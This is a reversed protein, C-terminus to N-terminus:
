YRKSASQDIRGYFFPGGDGRMEVSIDPPLTWIIINLWDCAEM